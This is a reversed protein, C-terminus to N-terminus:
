GEQKGRKTSRREILAHIAALTIRYEDGEGITFAELERARIMRQITRPHVHLYEAAEKVTFIREETMTGVSM